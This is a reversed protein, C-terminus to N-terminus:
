VFYWHVWDSYWYGDKMQYLYFIGAAILYIWGIYNYKTKSIHKLLFPMLIIYVFLDSYIAIRAILNGAGISALVYLGASLVAANSALYLIPAETKEIEKRYVFSLIAPIMMFATRIVKTQKIGALQSQYEDFSTGKAVEFFSKSFNSYFLGVVLVVVILFITTKQWPKKRYLFYVPVLFVVSTHLFYLIFLLLFWKIWKGDLILKYAAFLISAALCQRIGNMSFLCLGSCIYLYCALPISASEKRMVNWILFNCILATIFLLWQGDNTFTKILSIYIRFLPAKENWTQIISERFSLTTVRFQQLYSTTDGYGSQFGTVFVFVGLILLMFFINRKEQIEESSNALNSGEIRLAKSDKTTIRQALIGFTVTLVIMSYYVIM